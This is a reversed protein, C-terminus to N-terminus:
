VIKKNKDWFKRFHKNASIVGSLLDLKLGNGQAWALLAQTDKPLCMGDFPGYDKLGYHKNWFGEASDATINFAKDSDAGLYDGVLRMENFFAIKTANYLNHVYKQMEAERLSLHHVPCDMNHYIELMFEKTKKDLSGITILWPKQFDDEASVERLYEPNMSVGFDQGAKKGSAKEIIPVVLNETTGPLVTSRVIIVFYDHCDRLKEGLNNAAKELYALNIRDNETPTPVVFFFAEHEEVNLEDMHQAQYGSQRLRAITEERVDYFTVQHGGKVLFGKGTASGVVGSGIIAIKKM